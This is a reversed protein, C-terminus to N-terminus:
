CTSCFARRFDNLNCPDTELGCFSPIDAGLKSYYNKSFIYRGHCATSMNIRTQTHTNHWKHTVVLTFTGTGAWAYMQMAVQSCTRQRCLVSIWKAWDGHIMCCLRKFSTIWETILVVFLSSFSCQWCDDLHHLTIPLDLETILRCMYKICPWWTGKLPWHKAPFFM